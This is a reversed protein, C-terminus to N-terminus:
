TTQGGCAGGLPPLTPSREVWAQEPGQRPQRILGENQLSALAARVGDRSQGTEESLRREDIEPRRRIAGLVARCLAEQPDIVDPRMANPLHPRIRAQPHLGLWAGLHDIHVWITGAGTNSLALAIRQASLQHFARGAGAREAEEVPLYVFRQLAEELGEATSWRPANATGAPAFARIPARRRDEFTRTRREEADAEDLFGHRPAHIAALALPSPEPTEVCRVAVRGSEIRRYLRILGPLDMHECLCDHLAQDTLPHDPVQRPGSLNELCALQDPFIRAILNEARNRQVQAPVRGRGDRRDIALATTACWRFRTAFQPTDLVAQTLVDALTDSRLYGIVDSLPFSHTAGLSILVANDTALAQLEFNFRRCFRKRLALGWARNLRLGFPSHVVVHEDGGPDPFRELVIERWGPLGGLAHRSQHLFERLQRDVPDSRGSRGCLLRCVQLSVTASRGPGEGFWFPLAAESAECPRVEVRGCGIREIRFRGGGLQFVQGPSSEFAFEEDLRGLVQASDADVVEYDFWEPITGVNLRSRYQTDPAPFLASGSGRRLPGRGTERGSVYGDHLMDVVAQFGRESLNEFPAARRILAWLDATKVPGGAVMAVLQQALVDRPPELWRGGAEIRGRTLARMLAHADLLDTLTLPFLHLVPAQGPQHRSRGARQRLANVSGIGGIQVVRELQGIDIGLELSSSCVVVSLRGERLAQEVAARRALGLSGHHAAVARDGLREGLAAALREVLARTNCFVLLRGSGSALQALRDVVFTWRKPGALSQLPGTGIELRIDVPVASTDSVIACTRDKGVLFRAMRRLPRATASLGIRQLRGARVMAELRELSLALHAGRKSDALAHIEDVVLASVGALARRGGASGLLVFLSEPTTLLLDPPRRLQRRREALPTDGTRVAIRLGQRDGVCLSTIQEILGEAMNNSLARLPAVYLIRGARPAQLWRDILPLLAALSKGQGTGAAILCSHGSQVESWARRQIPTPHDFRSGFWDAVRASLPLEEM